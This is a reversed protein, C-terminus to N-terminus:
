DDTMKAIGPLTNRITATLENGAAELNGADWLITKFHNTDFHTGKADFVSKKCTYIPTLGLGESFGAEFYAGNNRHTLDAVVIRATRIRARMQTDILGAGQGENVKRLDFGAREAAPKFCNAFVAELEPDGFEMAMFASRGEIVRRTLSDYHDWGAMTLKYQDGKGPVASDGFVDNQASVFLSQPVLEACLWDFNPEQGPSPGLACGVIAALRPKTSFAWAAPQRQNEGIWLILNDRQEAPKPLTPAKSYGALDIEFIQLPRSTGEFSRRAIHSLISADIAGAAIMRPLIMHATGVVAVDGCRPCNWLGGGLPLAQAPAQSSCIPCPPPPM